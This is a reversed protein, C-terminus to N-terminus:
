KLEVIVEFDKNPCYIGPHRGSDKGCYVLPMGCHPCEAEEGKLVKEIIKRIEQYEERTYKRIEENNIDIVEKLTTYSNLLIM